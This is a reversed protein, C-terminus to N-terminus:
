SCGLITDRVIVKKAYFMRIDMRTARHPHNKGLIKPPRVHRYAENGGFQHVSCSNNTRPLVSVKRSSRILLLRANNGPLVVFWAEFRVSGGHAQITKKIRLYSISETFGTIYVVVNKFINSEIKAYLSFLSLSDALM